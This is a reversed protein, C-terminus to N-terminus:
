STFPVHILATVGGAGCEHVCSAANGYLLELRRRLNSLGIGTSGQGGPAIWEGSNSVALTLIGDAIATRIAIKVPRQTSCQGYKIANELLPQVLAVPVIADLAAPETQVVYELEEEFRMKEVCLYSELAALEEGLRGTDSRQQLSFRLYDSLALTIKRAAAPDDTSALISNLANFLFHPNVQSRLMQLEGARQAAESRAARIQAEQADLWLHIGFYLVSWFAYVVARVQVTFSFLPLEELSRDQLIDVWHIFLGDAVGLAACLIVLVTVRPVSILPTKRRARRFLPRLILSTVALGFLTRLVALTGAEEMPLYAITSLSLVLVGGWGAFQLRWFLRHRDQLDASLLLSM